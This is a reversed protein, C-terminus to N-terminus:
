ESFLLHKEGNMGAAFYNTSEILLLQGSSNTDVEDDEPFSTNIAIIKNDFMGKIKRVITHGVIIHRVSFHNLISDVSEKPLKSSQGRNLLNMNFYGRYELPGFYNILFNINERSASDLHIINEFGAWTAIYNNIAKLSYHKDILEMSIGGHVFLNNNIKIASSKSRLWRGLYSETSYLQDCNVHLKECINRYKFGVYDTQGSLILREHNGLLFHVKGNNKAAQVELKKIQWLCDTVCTGKDFVDGVIVLQGNGWIWDSSENIIQNAKLLTEFSHFSGHIDSVAAIKNSYFQFESPTPFTDTRDFGEPLQLAQSLGASDKLNIINEQISFKDDQIHKASLSKITSDNLYFLYPGYNYSFHNNAPNIIKVYVLLLMFGVLAGTSIIGLIFVIKRLIIQLKKM